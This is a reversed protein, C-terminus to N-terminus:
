GDSAEGEYAIVDFGGRVPLLSSIRPLPPYHVSNKNNRFYPSYQPFFHEQSSTHECIRYLNKYSPHQRSCLRYVVCMGVISICCFLQLFFAKYRKLSCRFGTARRVYPIPTWMNSKLIGVRDM